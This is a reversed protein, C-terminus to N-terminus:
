IDKCLVIREINFNQKKYFDVAEKNQATVMLEIKAINRNKAIKYIKEILRKGIGQKRYNSNVIFYNIHIRKNENVEREYGWIFGLLKDNDFACIIIASEDEIFDKMDKYTKDVFATDCIINNQNLTEKLYEKIEKEYENVIQNNMEKISYMKNGEKMM